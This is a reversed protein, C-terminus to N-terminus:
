NKPLSESIGRDDDKAEWQNDGDICILCPEETLKKEFHICSECSRWYM